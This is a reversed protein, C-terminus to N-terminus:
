CLYCFMLYWFLPIISMHPLIGQNDVNRGIRYSYRFFMSFNIIEAIRQNLSSVGLWCNLTMVVKHYKILLVNLYQRLKNLYQYSQYLLSFSLRLIILLLWTSLSFVLSVAFYRQHEYKNYVHYKRLRNLYNLGKTVYSLWPQVKPVRQVPM